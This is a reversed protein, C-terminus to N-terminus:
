GAQMLHRHIYQTHPHINYTGIPCAYFPGVIPVRHAACLIPASQQLCYNYYWCNVITSKRYISDFDFDHKKLFDHAISIAIKLLTSRTIKSHFMNTKQPFYDWEFPVYHRNLDRWCHLLWPCQSLLVFHWHVFHWRVFHWPCPALPRPALRVPHRPRPALTIVTQALM